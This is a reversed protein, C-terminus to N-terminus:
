KWEGIIRLYLAATGTNGSNSWYVVDIKNHMTAHVYPERVIWGNPGKSVNAYHCETAEFPLDVIAHQEGSAEVQVETWGCAEYVGSARKWWRWIGIKGEDVIFDALSGGVGRTAFSVDAAKVVFRNNTFGFGMDTPWDHEPDWGTFVFYGPANMAHMGSHSKVVDIPDGAAFTEWESGALAETGEVSEVDLKEVPNEVQKDAFATSPVLAAVGAAAATALFGKRTINEM